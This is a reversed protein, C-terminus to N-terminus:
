KVELKGLDKLTFRFETMEMLFMRHLRLENLTQRMLSLEQSKAVGAIDVRLVGDETGSIPIKNGNEDTLILVNEIRGGEDVRIIRENGDEDRGVTLSWSRLTGDPQVKCVLAKSGETEGELLLGIFENTLTVEQPQPNPEDIEAM